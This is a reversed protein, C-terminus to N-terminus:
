GAHAEIARERMENLRTSTRVPYEAPNEIRKYENPLAALSTAAFERIEGLSPLAGPLIAGGRAVPQLLSRGDPLPTEGELHIVDERFMGIRSVQKKGPWTSKPGAVKIPAEHEDATGDSDADYWVLKYVGGLAGGSVGHEVSGAGVALATGVGYADIPAGAAVLDGIKYEDMDGSALIQVDRLGADDLVDRCFRSDALIDGSDLRVAVLHHGWKERSEKAVDVATQIARHVDYTDLLLTFRPLCEAVTRFAEEESPFSQVLAHPITGSTPIGFANAAALFSTSSAGAIWASRAAIDPEQARRFGFEAVSKGGAAHMIRAAKTAILTSLSIVHLLGAELLLAERFPATVRLLPEPAFAIEGEAIGLLEGTFKTRRLEAYFADEYPKVRKLFAIEEDTYGFECAFTAALELGAALMYGSGFPNSRSYLDFTTLGNHGARWSVYASDVHYLDTLLGSRLQDASWM